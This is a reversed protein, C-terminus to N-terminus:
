NRLDKLRDKIPLGVRECEGLDPLFVFNVREEDIIMVGHGVDDIQGCLHPATEAHVVTEFAFDPGPDDGVYYGPPDDGVYYWRGDPRLEIELVGRVDEFNVGGCYWWGTLTESM